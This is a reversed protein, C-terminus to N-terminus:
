WVPVSVITADAIQRGKETYGMRELEFQKVWDQLEPLTEPIDTIGMRQGVSKWLVFNAQIEIPHLKRWEYQDIWKLPELIFMALTYLM